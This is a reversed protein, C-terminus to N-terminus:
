DFERCLEHRYFSKRDLDKPPSPRNTFHILARQDPITIKAPLVVSPIVMGGALAAIPKLLLLFWVLAWQM